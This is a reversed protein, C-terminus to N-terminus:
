TSHSAFSATAGPNSTGGITQVRVRQPIKTIEPSDKDNRFRPDFAGGPAHGRLGQLYRSIRTGQIRMKFSRKDLMFSRSISRQSEILEKLIRTSRLSRVRRVELRRGKEIPSVARWGECCKNYTDNNVATSSNRKVPPKCTLIVLHQPQSEYKYNRIYPMLM